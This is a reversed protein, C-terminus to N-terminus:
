SLCIYNLFFNKELGLRSKIISFCTVINLMAVFDLKPLKLIRILLVKAAYENM